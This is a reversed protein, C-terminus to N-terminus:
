EEDGLVQEAAEKAWAIAQELTDAGEDGCDWAQRGDWNSVWFKGDGSQKIFLDGAACQVAPTQYSELIVIDIENHTITQSM